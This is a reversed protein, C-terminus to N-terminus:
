PTPDSNTVAKQRALQDMEKFTRNAFGEMYANHEARNMKALEKKSKIQELDEIKLQKEPGRKHVLTKYNREMFETTPLTLYDFFDSHIRYSTSINGSGSEKEVVGLAVLADLLRRSTQTSRETLDALQKATVEGDNEILQRLAKSRNAPMSSIVVEKIIELEELGVANCNVVFALHQSLVILQQVARWPEEIQVDEVEYYKVESGEENKFRAARLMVIGRCHALLEASLRLYEQVPKSLSEISYDKSLLQMLYSSTYKRAEKELENRDVGSFLLNYSKNRDQTRAITYFLFRPGVMNLYRTHKNLTAPTICGLQAFSSSYSIIGRKPSFKAFEKDFINVMDGLLKKTMTEDLSFISTWDKLVLCKKDLEPLLDYVKNSRTNQEGSIFANMTLNDLFYAIDTDKVLRVYDTKASSPVSVLIVWLPVGKNFHASVTVALVLRLVKDSHPLFKDVVSLVEQYTLEEQIHVGEPTQTVSSHSTVKQARDLLNQFDKKTSGSGFYDGIDKGNKMDPLTVMYTEIDDQVLMQAVKKSAAKGASDADFCIMVKKDKLQKVFSKKFSTVGGATIAAFGNSILTLVDLEGECLVVEDHKAVDDKPYLMIEAGKPYLYKYKGKYSPARRIKTYLLRGDRIYPIHLQNDKVELGYMDWVRQSIKRDSRFTEWIKDLKM